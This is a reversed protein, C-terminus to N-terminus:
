KEFAEIKDQSVKVLEMLADEPTITFKVDQKVVPEECKVAELIENFIEKSIVNEGGLMYASCPKDKLYTKVSPKIVNTNTLLIPANKMAGIYGGMLKVNLDELAAVTPDPLRNSGTM